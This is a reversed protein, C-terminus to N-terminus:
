AAAWLALQLAVWVVMSALYLTPLGLPSYPRHHGHQQQEQPPAAAAERHQQQREEGRQLLLLPLAVGCVPLSWGCVLLCQQMPDSAM